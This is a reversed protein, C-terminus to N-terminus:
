TPGRHAAITPVSATLDSLLRRVPRPSTQASPHEGLRWDEVWPLHWVKPVGGAVVRAFDKLPKPLRGPADAVMVLGLLRLHPLGGSAWDAAALQACRLGRMNTRAVLVVPTGGPADGEGPLPWVHGAARTGALLAALTSEGAGGHAGVWWLAPRGPLARRPLRDVADPSPVGPQPATPGGRPWVFPDAEVSLSLATVPPATVVQNRETM